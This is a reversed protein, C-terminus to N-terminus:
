YHVYDVFANPNAGYELLLKVNQVRNEPKVNVFAQSMITYKERYSSNIGLSSDELLMKLVYPDGYGACLWKADIRGFHRYEYVSRTAGIQILYEVIQIKGKQENKTTNKDACYFLKQLALGDIKVGHILM